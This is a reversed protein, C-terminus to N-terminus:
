IYDDCSKISNQTNNVISSTSGNLNLKSKRKNRTEYKKLKKDLKDITKIDNTFIQITKEEEVIKLAKEKLTEETIKLKREKLRIEKKAVIDDLIM